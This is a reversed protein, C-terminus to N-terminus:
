QPEVTLNFQFSPATGGHGFQLALKSIEEIMLSSSTEAAGCYLSETEFTDVDFDKLKESGFIIIPVSIRRDTM